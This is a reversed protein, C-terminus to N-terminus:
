NRLPNKKAPSVLAGFVLHERLSFCCTCNSFKSFCVHLNHIGFQVQFQTTVLGTLINRATPLMDPTTPLFVWTGKGALPSRTFDLASYAALLQRLRCFQRSGVCKSLAPNGVSIVDFYVDDNVM